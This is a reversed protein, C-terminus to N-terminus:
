TNAISRGEGSLRACAGECDAIVGGDALALLVYPLTGCPFLPHRPTVVGVWRYVWCHGLILQSCHWQQDGKTCRRTYAPIDVIQHDLSLCSPAQIQRSGELNGCASQHAIRLCHNFVRSACSRFLTSVTWSSLTTPKVGWRGNEAVISTCWTTM